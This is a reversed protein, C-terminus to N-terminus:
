PRCPMASKKWLRALLLRKVMSTMWSQGAVGNFVIGHVVWEHDVAACEEGTAAEGKAASRQRCQQEPISQRSDGPGGAVTRRAAAIAANHIREVMRGPGLRHNEEAQGAPGAM